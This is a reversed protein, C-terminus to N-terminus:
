EPLRSYYDRLQGWNLSDMSMLPEIINIESPWLQLISAPIRPTVPGHAALRWIFHQWPVGDCWFSRFGADRIQAPGISYAHTMVVPYASDFTRLSNHMVSSPSLACFRPGQNLFGALDDLDGWSEAVPDIFAVHGSWGIGGYVVEAGGLEAIMDAYREINERCPAHIQSLPPHLSPDVLKLFNNLIYSRFSFPFDEPVTDGNPLAYEDMLFIHSHNLSLRYQNIMDALIAYQKVPGVPFIGVFRRGQDRAAVLRKFIDKAYRRHFAEPRTIVNIRLNPNSTRAAERATMACVDLCAGVARFAIFDHPQWDSKKM